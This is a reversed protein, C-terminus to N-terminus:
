KLPKFVIGIQAGILGNGYLGEIENGTKYYQFYPQLDLYLKPKLQYKLGMQIQASGVYGTRTPSIFYTNTYGLGGYASLKQGSLFEFNVQLPQSIVHGHLGSSNFSQETGTTKKVFQGYGLGASVNLWPKIAYAASLHVNMRNNFRTTQDIVAYENNVAPSNVLADNSYGVSSEVPRYDYAEGVHIGFSWKSLVVEPLLSARALESNEELDEKPSISDARSIKQAVLEEENNQIETIGTSDKTVNDDAILYTENENEDKQRVEISDGLGPIPSAEISYFAPEVRKFTSPNGLLSEDMSLDSGWYKFSAESKDVVVEDAANEDKRVHIVDGTEEVVSQDNNKQELSNLPEKVEEIKSMKDGEPTLTNVFLFVLVSTLVVFSTGTWWLLAARKKKKGVLEAELNSWVQESPAAGFEAFRNKLNSDKQM